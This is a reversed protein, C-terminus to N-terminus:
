LLESLVTLTGVSSYINGFSCQYYLQDDARTVPGVRLMNNNGNLPDVIWEMGNVNVTNNRQRIGSFYEDDIKDGNRNRKIIHWLPVLSPDAGTFGCSINAFQNVCVTTNRPGNTIIVAARLSSYLCSMFYTCVSAPFIKSLKSIKFSVTFITHM